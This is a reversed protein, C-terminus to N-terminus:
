PASKQKGKAPPRTECASLVAQARGLSYALQWPAIREVREM